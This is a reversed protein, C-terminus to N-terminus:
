QRFRIPLQQHLELNAVCIWKLLENFQPSLKGLLISTAMAVNLSEAQSSNAKEITVSEDLLSKIKQVMYETPKM